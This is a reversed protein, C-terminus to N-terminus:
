LDAGKALNCAKCLLRLNQLSTAGGLAVPIIHDYQLDFRSDCEVCAGGDREFVARRLPEPIHERRPRATPNDELNMLTHARKLKARQRRERDRILALVDSADYNPSSWYWRDEFWWWVRQRTHAVEVPVLAQQESLEALDAHSLRVPPCGTGAFYYRKRFLFGNHDYFIDANGDPRLQDVGSTSINRRAFSPCDLPQRMRVLSILVILVAIVILYNLTNGTTPMGVGWIMM